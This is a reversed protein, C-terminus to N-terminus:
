EVILIKHKGFAYKLEDDLHDATLARGCTRGRADRVVEDNADLYVQTIKYRDTFPFFGTKQLLIAARSFEPPENAVFYNICDEYSVERVHPMVENELLTGLSLHDYNRKKKDSPPRDQAQKTANNQNNVHEAKAAESQSNKSM